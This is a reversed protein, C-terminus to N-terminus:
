RPLAYIVYKQSSDFSSTLQGTMCMYYMAQQQGRCICTIYEYYGLVYQQALVCCRALQICSHLALASACRPRSGDMWRNWIEAQSANPLTSARLSTESTPTQRNGGSYVRGHRRPGFCAKRNAISVAYAELRDIHRSAHVTSVLPRNTTGVAAVM